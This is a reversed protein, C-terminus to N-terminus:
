PEEIARTTKTTRNARRINDECRRRPRELTEPCVRENVVLVGVSWAGFATPADEPCSANVPM